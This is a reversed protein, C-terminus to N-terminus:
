IGFHTSFYSYAWFPFIPYKVGQKLSNNLPLKSVLGWMTRINSTNVLVFNPAFLPTYAPEQGDEYMKPSVHLKRGLYMNNM